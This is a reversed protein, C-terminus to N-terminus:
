VTTDGACSGSIEVPIGLQGGQAVMVPENTAIEPPFGASSPLSFVVGDNMPINCYGGDGRLRTKSSLRNYAQIASHLMQRHICINDALFCPEPDTTDSTTVPVLSGNVLTVSTVAPRLNPIFNLVEWGAGLGGTALAARNATGDSLAANGLAIQNFRVFRGKVRPDLTNAISAAISRTLRVRQTYAEGSTLGLFQAGSLVSADDAIMSGVAIRQRGSRLTPIRPAPPRCSVAGIPALAPLPTVSSPDLNCLTKPFDGHLDFLAHPQFTLIAAVLAQAEVPRIAAQLGGYVYRNLDYGRGVVGFFNKETESLFGGGAHRDVNHRFFGETRNYPRGFPIQADRATPEGGDPNARLLIVLNLNKLLTRAYRPRRTVDRLFRLAAETSAAENGHLQTVIFVRRATADQSGLRAGLLVRGNTSAGIADPDVNGRPPQVSDKTVTCVVADRATPVSKEKTKNNGDSCVDLRVAPALSNDLPVDINLLGSRPAGKQAILPGVHLPIQSQKSIRRLESNLKEYPTLYRAIAADISLGCAPNYSSCLQQERANSSSGVTAAALPVCRILVACFILLIMQFAAFVRSEQYM